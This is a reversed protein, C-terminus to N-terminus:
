YKLQYYFRGIIERFFFSTQNFASASPIFDLITLKQVENLYDVPFPSVELGASEFVMQARPMHYASTVLIIKPREKKMIKAVAKAEQDTNQVEETVLMVKDPVGYSSAINRLYKGEPEGVSWPLKGGTFILFPAKNAKFLDIGAFIRDSAETWEYFPGNDGSIARVMGSLVVIADSSNLSTPSIRSYDKELYFILKNSFIPLSCVVFVLIATLSAKRSRM